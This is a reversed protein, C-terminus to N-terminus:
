AYDLSIPLVTGVILYVLCVAVKPIPCMGMKVFRVSLKMRVSWVFHHAAELADQVM